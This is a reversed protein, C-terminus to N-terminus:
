YVFITGRQFSFNLTRKQDHSLRVKASPGQNLFVATGCDLDARRIVIAFQRNM